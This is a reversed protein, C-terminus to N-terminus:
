VFILKLGITKRDKTLKKCIYCGDGFGSSVTVGIDRCDTAYYKINDLTKLSTWFKEWVGDEKFDPKHNYFGCLGADVGINNSLVYSHYDSQLYVPLYDEHVITLSVIRNDHMTARGVKEACGRKVDDEDFKWISQFDVEDIFATYNGPLVKVDHLACWTDKDYCPDTVDVLGDPFSVKGIVYNKKTYINKSERIYEM